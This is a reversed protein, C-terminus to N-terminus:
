GPGGRLDVTTLGTEFGGEAAVPDIEGSPLRMTEEDQSLVMRIHLDSPSPDGGIVTFWASITDVAINLGSPRRM